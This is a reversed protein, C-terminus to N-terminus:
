YRTHITYKEQTMDKADPMQEFVGVAGKYQLPIFKNGPANRHKLLHLSRFWSKLLEIDYGAFKKEDERMHRSPDFIGFVVNADKTPRKTDEFDRLLPTKIGYRNRDVASIEANFQQVFVFTFNCKNRFWVGIRSIRDISSKITDHPPEIEALNATDVVIISYLNSNNLEYGECESIFRGEKKFKGVKKAYDMLVDHFKSPGIDDDFVFLKKELDEFYRTYSEVIEYEDKELRKGWSLLREVPLVRGSDIYIRRSLAGMMNEEGSIELSFDLINLDLKRYDGVEKFFDYPKYIHNERVFKTKGVGTEAGYLYNCGQRTGFVAEDYRKIGTPICQIKGSMGENILKLTKKFLGQM